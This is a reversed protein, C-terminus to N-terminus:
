SSRGCYMAAANMNLKPYLVASNDAKVKYEFSNPGYGCTFRQMSSSLVLTHLKYVSNLFVVIQSSHPTNKCKNSRKYRIRLENSSHACAGIM